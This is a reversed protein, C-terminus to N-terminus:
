RGGGGQTVIGDFGPWKELLVETAKGHGIKLAESGQGIYATALFAANMLDANGADKHMKAVLGGSKVARAVLAEARRIDDRMSTVLERETKM